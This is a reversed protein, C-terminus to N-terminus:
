TLIEIKVTNNTSVLLHCKDANTKMLNENFWKYLVHSVEELSKIIEDIGDASLYPTNGVPYSTIYTDKIIFFFILRFDYLGIEVVCTSQSRHPANTIILDICAPNSPNKCCAPQRSKKLWLKQM